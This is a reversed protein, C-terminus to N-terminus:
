HGDSRNLEDRGKMIEEDGENTEKMGMSYRIGEDKRM